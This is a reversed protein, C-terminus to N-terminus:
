SRWSRTTYACREVWKTGIVQRYLFFLDAIYARNMSSDTEKIWTPTVAVASLTFAMFRKTSEPQRSSVAVVDSTSDTPRSRRTSGVISHLM